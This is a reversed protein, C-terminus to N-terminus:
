RFVKTRRPHRTRKMTGRLLPRKGLEVGPAHSDRRELTLSRSATDYERLQTTRRPPVLRGFRQSRMLPAEGLGM